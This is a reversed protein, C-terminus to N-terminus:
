INGEIFEIVKKSAEDKNYLEVNLLFKHKINSKEHAWIFNRIEQNKIGFDTSFSLGDERSILNEATDICTILFLNDWVKTNSMHEKEIELVYSGNYNRYIPGYVMEGLHSRDSIIGISEFESFYELLKFFETYQKQSYKLGLQISEHKVSGFHLSQFTNKNFHNTINRILTSKGSNDTPGKL